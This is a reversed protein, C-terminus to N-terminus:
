AGVGVVNQDGALPAEKAEQLALELVGLGFLFTGALLGLEKKSSAVTLAGTAVVIAGLLRFAIPLFSMDAPLPGQLAGNLPIAM